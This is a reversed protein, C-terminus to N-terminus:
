AVVNLAFCLRSPSRRFSWLQVVAHTKANVKLAEANREKVENWKGGLVYCFTKSMRWKKLKLSTEEISPDIIMVDIGQNEELKDKEDQTLFDANVQREPISFRGQQSSLDSHTLEKEIVLALQQPGYKNIILEVLEEPPTPSSLESSKLGTTNKINRIKQRKSDGMWPRKKKHSQSPVNFTRKKRMGSRKKKPVEDFISFVRRDVVGSEDRSCSRRTMVKTVFKKVVIKTVEKMQQEKDGTIQEVEKLIAEFSAGDWDSSSKQLRAAMGERIIKRPVSKLFIYM